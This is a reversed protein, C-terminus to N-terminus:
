RQMTQTILKLLVFDYNHLKMQKGIEPFWSNMMLSLETLVVDILFVPFFPFDKVIRTTLLQHPTCPCSLHASCSIKLCHIATATFVDFM